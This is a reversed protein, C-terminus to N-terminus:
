AALRWRDFEADWAVKGMFQYFEEVTDFMAALLLSYHSGLIPLESECFTQECLGRLNRRIWDPPAARSFVASYSFRESDQGSLDPSLVVGRRRMHGHLLPIPFPRDRELFYGYTEKLRIQFRHEITSGPNIECAVTEGRALWAHPLRCWGDPVCVRDLPRAHSFCMEIGPLNHIRRFWSYSRCSLDEQVCERCLHASKAGSTFLWPRPVSASRTGHLLPPNSQTTVRLGPVLTHRRVYDIPTMGSLAALYWERFLGRSLPTIAEALQFILDRRSSLPLLGAHFAAVRGEHGDVLEDPLPPFLAISM